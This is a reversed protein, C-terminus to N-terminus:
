AHRHSALALPAFATTALPVLLMSVGLALASPPVSTTPAIKVYFAVTTSVYILWLFLAFSFLRKGLYGSAIAKRLSFICVVIIVVALIYGYAIWLNLLNWGHKSDWLALAFHLYSIIAVSLFVKPHKPLWLGFALFVSSNSFFLLAASFAGAIWWAVSVDGVASSIATGIRVWIHWDGSLLAHLSAALAMFLWGVLTTAAIMLLKVTILQDNQLSRAGDFVSFQVAGQKHKLGLSGDSGILQYVFPCLVLVVIWVVPSSEWDNDAAPAMSLVVLAIMACSISVLLVKTGFRRMEFWCQATFRNTFPKSAPILSIACRSRLSAVGAVYLEELQLRDGHRQREVAIVTVIFALATLMLLVVYYPWGFDFYELEGMAMLMPGPIDRQKDIVCLSVAAGIIMGSLGIMKGFITSPSWTAAICCAIACVIIAAPGVLPMPRGMLLSFLSTSFLFCIVAATITFVMPVAVLLTTSVPRAFGLRFSFGTQQRDLEYLWTQSAVSSITLIMIAIGCIVRIEPESTLKTNSVGWIFLVAGCLGGVRILLEVHSTRWVEWIMAQLPNRM